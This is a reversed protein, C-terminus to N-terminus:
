FVSVAVVSLNTTYIGPPTNAAINAVMALTYNTQGSSSDSHAIIAGDAYKYSDPVNYDATPLGFSFSSDPIQVPDTGVNPTANDRLNIGFQEVGQQVGTANMVDLSESGMKPPSGAIILDYGSSLYTRVQINATGSGTSTPTLVGLDVSGNVAVELVPVDSTNFGAQAQYSSSKTNGAATEGASQRSCYGNSCANLEGGTNFSYEDVRYNPSTSQAAATATFNALLLVLVLGFRYTNRKWSM